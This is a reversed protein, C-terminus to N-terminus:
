KRPAGAGPTPPMSPVGAPGGRGMGRMAGAPPMAGGFSGGGGGAAGGGGGIAPAMTVAGAPLEVKAVNPTSPAAPSEPTPAGFISYLIVGLAIFMFVGRIIWETQNKM